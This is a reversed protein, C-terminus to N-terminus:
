QEYVVVMKIRSVCMLANKRRGKTQNCMIEAISKKRVNREGIARSGIPDKIISFAGENESVGIDKKNVKMEVWGQNCRFDEINRNITLQRVGKLQYFVEPSSSRVLLRVSSREEVQKKLVRLGVAISVESDKLGQLDRVHNKTVARQSRLLHRQNTLYLEHNHSFKHKSMTWGGKDNLHFEIMANCDTCLDVKSYCKDVKAKDCKKGQVNFELKFEYDNYLKFADEESRVMTRVLSYQNCIEIVAINFM